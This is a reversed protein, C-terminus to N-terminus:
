MVDIPNIKARIKAGVFENPDLSARRRGSKRGHRGSRRHRQGGPELVSQAIDTVDFSCILLAVDWLPEKSFDVVLYAPTSCGMLFYNTIFKIDDFGDFNPPRPM